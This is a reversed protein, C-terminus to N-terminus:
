MPAPRPQPSKRPGVEEALRVGVYDFRDDAEFWNRTSVRMWDPTDCWSGGRLVRGCDSNGSVPSGDTPANRYTAAYCDATWQWVNGLMDFLGFRNAPFRGVPAREAWIDRGRVGTGNAYDASWSDGWWYDTRTGARAAYEWEAESPLRFHRGSAADLWAIFAQADDWSINVAPLAGPDAPTPLGRARQYIAFQAETIDYRALRFARLRVERVPHEDDASGHSTSGMRFSGAPISMMESQLQAILRATARPIPTGLRPPPSACSGGTADALTLLTCLALM